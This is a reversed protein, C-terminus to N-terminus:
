APEPTLADALKGFAEVSSACAEQIFDEDVELHELWHIFARWYLCSQRGYGQLFSVNHRTVGVDKALFAAAMDRAIYISGELVFAYGVSQAASVHGKLSPDTYIEKEPVDQGLSALDKDIKGFRARRNAIDCLRLEALHQWSMEALCAAAAARFQQLHTIYSDFTVASEDVLVSSIFDEYLDATSMRLRALLSTGVASFIERPSDLAHSKAM